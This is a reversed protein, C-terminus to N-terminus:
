QKFEDHPTNSFGTPLYRAPFSQFGSTDPGAIVKDLYAPDIPAIRQRLAFAQGALKWTDIYKM